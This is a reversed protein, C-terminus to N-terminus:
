PFTLRVVRMLCTGQASFTGGGFLPDAEVSLHGVVRSDGVYSTPCPLEFVTGRCDQAFVDSVAM